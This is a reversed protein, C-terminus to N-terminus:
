VNEAFMEVLDRVPDGIVALVDRLIRMEGSALGPAIMAASGAAAGSVPSGSSCIKASMSRMTTGPVMCQSWGCNM